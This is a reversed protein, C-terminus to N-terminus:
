TAMMKRILKPPLSEWTLDTRNEYVIRMALQQLSKPQLRVNVFPKYVTDHDHVHNLFGGLIIVDGNLGTLGSHNYQQYMDQHTRWTYSEVDFIWTSGSTAFMGGYLALQSDQIPTLTAKVTEELPRLIGTKIQTWLFSLMDLEYFDFDKKGGCLWVKDKIVAASANSRPSPISGSCIVGSFTQVSPDCCFLENTLSELSVDYGGFIWLKKGHEWDCHCLRRYTYTNDTMRVTTSAFSGNNCRTLKWLLNKYRMPRAGLIYVDSAIAVGIKSATLLDRRAPRITHEKWQETWLNYTWIEHKLFYKSKATKDFDLNLFVLITDELRVVVNHYELFDM